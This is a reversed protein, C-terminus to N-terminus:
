IPCPNRDTPNTPATINNLSMLNWRWTQDTLEGQHQSTISASNNDDTNTINVDSANKGDDCSAVAVPSDDNGAPESAGASERQLKALLRPPLNRRYPRRDDAPPPAPEVYMCPRSSRYTPAAPMPLLKWKGASRRNRSYRMNDVHATDDGDKPTADEQRGDVKPSSERLPGQQKSKPRDNDICGNKRQQNSTTTKTSYSRKEQIYKERRDRMDASTDQRNKNNNVYENYSKLKYNRDSFTDLTPRTRSTRGTPPTDDPRREGDSSSAKASAEQEQRDRRNRYFVRPATYAQSRDIQPEADTGTDSEERDNESSV